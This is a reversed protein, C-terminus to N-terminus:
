YRRRQKAVGGVGYAPYKAKARVTAQRSDRGPVVVTVPMGGRPPVMTVEWLDFAGAGYAQLQLSLRTVDQLTQQTQQRQMASARMALNYEERSNEESKWARWGPQLKKNDESALLFFPVAYLDGNEHEFLVGECTYTKPNGRLKKAWEELDELNELDVKEFHSVIKPIMKQYVPQINDFRKDNVYIESRRRRITLDRQGYEVVNAKFSLGNKLTWKQTAAEQSPSAEESELYKQDAESLEEIAVMVLSKDEKQLVVASDNRAMLDAELKYKGSADSWERANGVLPTFCVCTTLISAIIKQYM